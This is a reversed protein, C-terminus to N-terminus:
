FETDKNKAPSRIKLETENFIKKRVIPTILEPSVEKPDNWGFIFVSCILSVIITVMAALFTYWMYSIEYLPFIDETPTAYTAATTANFSYPCDDAALHKPTIKMHGSAIAYQAKFSLWGM